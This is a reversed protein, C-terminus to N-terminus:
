RSRRSSCISRPTRIPSCRTCRRTSRGCWARQRGRAEGQRAEAVGHRRQFLSRPRFRRLLDLPLGEGSRAQARGPEHLQDGHLDRDRRGPGAAADAGAPQARRQPRRHQRLRHREEQRAAAAAQVLRRRAAHRAEQRGRGQVDQDPKDAKTLLAFPARSYIMYVMVPADAPRTAANQIIANMDGFGADYAGSMIRTVTAASGEGQDITVDLKEAAFYGKEQAWFYWAHIGQLKWDLTFRIKTTEQASAGSTLMFLGAAVAALGRILSM